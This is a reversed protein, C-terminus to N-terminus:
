LLMIGDGLKRLIGLLKYADVDKVILRQGVSYNNDGTKDIYYQDVIGNNHEIIHRKQFTINMFEFDSKSIWSLYNYGTYKEFMQSGKDVIQFDNARQAKGTIEELKTSAFKQYASVMDGISSELMKRCTSEASDLGYKETMLSKVENLSDIMRNISDLSDNYSNVASNYGCCPCFYASGIVSYHTGCKECLIDTEWEKCQGIPNNIFTIREGPRYTIKVYKNNRTSRSLEQFADDFMEQAKIIAYNRVIDQIQGIQGDTFWNIASSTYGCMPCYVKEDSVLSLWDELSVKFRFQCKENPCQRDLYGKNDSLMSIPISDM